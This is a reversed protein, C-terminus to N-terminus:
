EYAIARLVSTRAARLAPVIASVLGVVVALVLFVAITGWSFQLVPIGQDKLARVVAVGLVCGVVLGLLAGFVSIVVSEVTVMEAVQLRLLGVARLLGLERTRELISLALTNVIGLVAVVIALALLVYLIVQVT